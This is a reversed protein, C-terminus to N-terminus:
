PTVGSHPILRASRPGSSKAAMTTARIDAVVIEGSFVQALLPLLPPRRDLPELARAIAAITRIGPNAKTGVELNALHSRHVGGAQALQTQTLGRDLRLARIAEGLTTAGVVAIPDVPADVPHETTTDASAHEYSGALVGVSVELGGAIRQLTNLGVNPIGGREIAGVYNRHMGIRAGFGVQSFGAQQRLRRITAGMAIAGSACPEGAGTVGMVGAISDVTVM